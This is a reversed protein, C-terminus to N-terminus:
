RRVFQMVEIRTGDPDTIMANRVPVAGPRPQNPMRTVTGGAAAVRAVTAEIDPVQILFGGNPEPKTALLLIIGSVTTDTNPFRLVHERPSVANTMAMGFVQGYFRESRAMDAVRVHASMLVPNAAIPLPPASPRAPPTQASAAVASLLLTALIPTGTARASAM